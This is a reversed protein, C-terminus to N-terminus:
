LVFTIFLFVFVGLVLLYRWDKIWRALIAVVLFTTILVYFHYVFDLVFGLYIWRFFEEVVSGKIVMIFGLITLFVSATKSIYEFM